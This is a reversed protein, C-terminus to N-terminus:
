GTTARFVLGSGDVGYEGTGAPIWVAAGGGIEHGAASVRGSACLLIEPGTPRFLAAEGVEIRTLCFDSVGTHFAFQPGDPSQVEVDRSRCDVVELLAPIDVHKATLGGRLVNDSNAMIEVAVGHLYVHLNGAGLFLAQGPDLHVLNLMLAIAVGIDGPHQQGIREGWQREDAFSGPQGCAETVQHAVVAGSDPSQELLWRLARGTDGSRLLSTAPALDSVELSELLAAAVRPPRFGCFATFPELACILEPKHNRDRYSRHDAGIPIGQEDEADFGARAQQRSPHAQLSLPQAVALIKLLFPLENGYMRASEPGLEGAPDDAIVLDLPREVGDRELVSPARPHAGLWLEAQPEGSAPVGM